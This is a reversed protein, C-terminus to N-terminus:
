KEGEIRSIARTAADRVRRDKDSKAKELDPIASKAEAGFYGLGIAASWRVDIEKDKLSEILAPVVTAPDGRHHQLLRVAKIRDGDDDSSLDEILGDTSKGSGCGAVFVFVTFAVMCRRAWMGGRSVPQRTVNSLGGRVAGSRLCHFAEAKAYAVKGPPSVDISPLSIM